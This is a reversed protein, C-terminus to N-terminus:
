ESDDLKYRSIHTGIEFDSCKLKMLETTKLVNAMNRQVAKHTHLKIKLKVCNFTKINSVFDGDKDFTSQTKYELFRCDFCKFQNIPNKSCFKEHRTMSGKQKMIRRCYGCMYAIVAESM